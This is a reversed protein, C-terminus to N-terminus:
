VAPLAWARGSGGRAEAKEGAFHVIITVCGSGRCALSSQLLERLLHWSHHPPVGLSQAAPIQMELLPSPLPLSGSSRAPTEARRGLPGLVQGAKWPGPCLAQGDEQAATSVSPGCAQAPGLLDCLPSESWIALCPNPPFPSKQSGGPFAQHGPLHTCVVSSSVQPSSTHRHRQPPQPSCSGAGLDTPRAM